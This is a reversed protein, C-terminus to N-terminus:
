ESLDLKIIVTIDAVGVVGDHDIDAAEAIFPQPNGGLTKAVVATIDNVNVIGDGNVDGPSVNGNTLYGPNSTGGDIHAYKKDTHNMDYTTGMGGVLSTCGQFMGDSYSVSATSWGDGVYIITLDSCNGFMDDMNSVNLTNWGSLDLSKLVFCCSFMSNMYMVSSTNWGSLDLTTLNMCNNFMDSMDDVNSTDWGSLDLTTLMLCYKFMKSMDSVYITNVRSLDMSTCNSFDAFLLSCDGIFSVQNTATVSKVDSIPVDDGWKNTSNFEGWNLKLEGTTSDFTYRPTSGVFTFTASVQVDEEPMTFSWTGNGNDTLNIYGGCFATLSGTVYVYEADPVPTLTISDGPYYGQTGASGGNVDVHGHTSQDIINHPMQMLQRATVTVDKAPMTFHFHTADDKLIVADSSTVMWQSHSAPMPLTIDVRWGAMASTTPVGNVSFIMDTINGTIGYTTGSQAWVATGLLTVLILILKKM